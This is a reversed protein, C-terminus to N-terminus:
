SQTDRNWNIWLINIWLSSAIAEHGLIQRDNEELAGSGPYLLRKTQESKLVAIVVERAQLEGELVSLIKLLDPKSLEM